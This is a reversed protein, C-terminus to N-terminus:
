AAAGAPLRALVARHVTDVDLDRLCRHHGRPCREPGHLDCPSCAIGTHLAVSDARLPGFGLRPHTPGFLAVVPLGCAEAVHLIGSDNVLAASGRGVLAPLDGPDACAVVEARGAPAGEAVRRLLPEEEPTGLVMVSRGGSALRGAVEAFREAPWRKTARGAGPAIVVPGDADAPGARLVPVRGDRRVGLGELCSFMRDVARSLRVGAGGLPRLNVFAWRRVPEKSVRLRRAARVRALLRRSRGSGSLDVLLSWATETVPAPPPAGPGSWLHLEDIARVGRLVRGYPERSLFALRASPYRDRLAEAAPLALVVDGLASLRCVLISEV